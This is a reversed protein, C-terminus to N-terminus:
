RGTRIMEDCMATEIKQVAAEIAATSEIIDNDKVGLQCTKSRIFDSESVIVQLSQRIQDVLGPSIM